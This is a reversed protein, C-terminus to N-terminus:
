FEVALKARSVRGLPIRVVKTRSVELVVEDNEIARMRGEFHVQGSLAERVVIKAMRGVFRRFDDPGRLPRDMGPSSVELTYHEAVPDEVDLVVGLDQSVRQCDEIGISHEVPDVLVAGDGAYRTPHDIVVRLVWGIPERRLQLDFLDFGYSRVVRAAIARVQDLQVDPRV